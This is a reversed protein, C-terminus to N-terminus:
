VNINTKWNCCNTWFLFGENLSTNFKATTNLISNLLYVKIWEGIDFEAILILNRKIQM